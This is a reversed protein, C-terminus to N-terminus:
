LKLTLIIGFDSSSFFIYKYIQESVSSREKLTCYTGKEREEKEKEEEKM